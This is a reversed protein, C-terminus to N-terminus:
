DGTLATLNVIREIFLNKKEDFANLIVTKRKEFNEEAEKVRSSYEANIAEIEDESVPNEIPMSRWKEAEAKAEMLIREAEKEAEEIIRRAEAEIEEISM